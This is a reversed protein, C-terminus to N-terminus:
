SQEGFAEKIKNELEHNSIPKTLIEKAGLAMGQEEIDRDILGTILFFIIDPKILKAQKLIELGASDTDIRVDCFVMDPMEKKLTEIAEPTTSATCVLYNRRSLFSKQFAVVDPEDDVIL